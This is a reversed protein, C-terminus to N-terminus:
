AQAPADSRRRMMAFQNESGHGKCGVRASAWADHCASPVAVAVAQAM